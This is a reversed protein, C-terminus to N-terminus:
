TITKPTCQELPRHLLNELESKPLYGLFIMGNSTCHLPLIADVYDVLRVSQQPDIQDITLTNNHKPVSLFVTEQTTDRLREM